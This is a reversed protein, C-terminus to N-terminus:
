NSEIERISYGGSISPSLEEPKIERVLRAAAKVSLPVRSLWRVERSMQLNEQSYFAGDMVFLSSWDVQKSFNQLLLAFQQSDSENGSGIRMTIPIDGDSSCMLNMMFQKLDPRHDRSYGYTIKIRSPESNEEEPLESNEYEGEVSFSSSDLHATNIDIQYKKVVPLTIKLFVQSLGVQYLQDLVRGLRDDNLNEAVIGEGLLHETAKGEFFRSFLYLPASVLGLGNLIMGKVVQGASIKECPHVGLIENINEVLGIEDILGAVIGLHDLNSVPISM